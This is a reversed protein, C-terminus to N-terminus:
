LVDIYHTMACAAYLYPVTILHRDQRKQVSTHQNPDIGVECQIVRIDEGGTYHPDLVLFRLEGTLENYDVGLITHALVGGGACVYWSSLNLDRICPKDSWSSSQTPITQKRETCM